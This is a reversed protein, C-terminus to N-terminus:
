LCWLVVQFLSRRWCWQLCCEVQQDCRWDFRPAAALSSLHRQFYATELELYGPKRSPRARGYLTSFRSPCQTEEEPGVARTGHLVGPTVKTRGKPRPPNAFTLAPFSFALSHSLPRAADRSAHRALRTLRGDDSYQPPVTSVLGALPNANLVRYHRWTVARASTVLSKFRCHRWWNTHIITTIGVSSSTLQERIIM